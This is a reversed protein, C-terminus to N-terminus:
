KVLLLTHSLMDNLFHKVASFACVVLDKLGLQIRDSRFKGEEETLYVGLGTTCDTALGVASGLYRTQDRGPGM